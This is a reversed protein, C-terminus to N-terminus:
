GAIFLTASANLIPTWFLTLQLVLEDWLKEDSIEGDYAFYICSPIRNNTCGIPLAFAFFWINVPPILGIFIYLVHM